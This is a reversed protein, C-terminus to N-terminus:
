SDSWFRRFITRFDCVMVVRNTNEQYRGDPLVKVGFGCQGEIRDPFSDNKIGTVASQHSFYRTEPVTTSGKSKKM